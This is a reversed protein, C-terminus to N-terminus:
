PYAAIPSCHDPHPVLQPHQHSHPLASLLPPPPTGRGGKGVGYGVACGCKGLRNWIVGRRDWVNENRLESRGEGTRCGVQREGRVEEEGRGIRIMYFQCLTTPYTM